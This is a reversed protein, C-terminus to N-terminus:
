KKQPTHKIRHEMRERPRPDSPIVEVVGGEVEKERPQYITNLLEFTRRKLDENKTSLYYQKTTEIKKHGMLEMLMNLNMNNNACNSAFTHRLTHFKFEIGLEARIKKSWYKMSNVTLLEGNAKRNVFDGETIEEKLMEDFVRETDRYGRGLTKKQRKQAEHLEYLYNQLVKPMFVKRVGTLTKVPCLKLMGDEYHMQRNITITSEAWDINRWRVAFVESIRLGCYLGLYFATLLNGDESKFIEEMQYCQYPSYTEIPSIEEEYDAQTMDPMKLRTGKDVFMRMYREHDILELRYAYGGLLYFFKLFGEVYKYAYNKVTYLEHLYDQLDGLTISDLYRDGMDPSIHEKWMSSQKAITAPAKSKAEASNMYDEYIARLTTKRRRSANNGGGQELRARHAEKAKYAEEATAFPLGQENRKCTTDIKDGNPLTMKLRYQWATKNTNLPLTGPYRKGMTKAGKLNKRM